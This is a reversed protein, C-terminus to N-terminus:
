EEKAPNPEYYEEAAMSVVVEEAEPAIYTNAEAYYTADVEITEAPVTTVAEAYIDGSVEFTQEQAPMVKAQQSKSFDILGAPALAPKVDVTTGLDRGKPGGAAQGASCAPDTDDAEDFTLQRAPERGDAKVMYIDQNGNVNSQYIIYQSDHTFCPSENRDGALELLKFDALRQCTAHGAEDYRVTCALMLTKEGMDQVYVLTKGDPSVAMDYHDAGNTPIVTNLSYGFRGPKAELVELPGTNSGDDTLRRTAFYDVDSAEAPNWLVQKLQDAPFHFFGIRDTVNSATNFTMARYEFGSRGNVMEVFAFRNKDGHPAWDAHYAMIAEGDRSLVQHDTFDALSGYSITPIALVLLNLVKTYAIQTGDFSLAPDQFLVAAKNNETLQEATASPATTKMHLNSFGSRKSVFAFQYSLPSPAAPVPVEVETGIDTDVELDGVPSEGSGAGPIFPDRAPEEAEAVPSGGAVATPEEAVEVLDGADVGDNVVDKDAVPIEAFDVQPTNDADASDNSPHTSCGAAVVALILLVSMKRIQSLM